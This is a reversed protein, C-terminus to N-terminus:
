GTSTVAAPVRLPGNPRRTQRGAVGIATLWWCRGSEIDAFSVSATHGVGRRGNVRERDRIMKLGQRWFQGSATGFPPWYRGEEAATLV